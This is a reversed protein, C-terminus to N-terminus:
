AVPCFVALFAFISLTARVTLQMVGAVGSCCTGSGLFFSGADYAVSIGSENQSVNKGLPCSTNRVEGLIAFVAFKPGFPGCECYWIEMVMDLLLGGLFVITVHSRPELIHGMGARSMAELWKGGYRFFPVRFIALLLMGWIQDGM